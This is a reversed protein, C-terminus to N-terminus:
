FTDPSLFESYNYLCIQNQQSFIIPQFVQKYGCYWPIPVRNHVTDLNPLQVQVRMVWKLLVVPLVPVTAFGILGQSCWKTSAEAPKVKVM